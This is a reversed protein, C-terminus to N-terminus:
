RIIHPRNFANDYIRGRPVAIETWADPAADHTPIVIWHGTIIPRVVDCPWVGSDAGCDLWWRGEPESIAATTM